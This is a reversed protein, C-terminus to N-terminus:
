KNLIMKKVATHNNGDFGKVDIRYM